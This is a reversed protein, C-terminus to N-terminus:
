VVNPLKMGDFMVTIIWGSFLRQQDVSHYMMTLFLKKSTNDSLLQSSLNQQLFELRITRTRFFLRMTELIVQRIPDFHVQALENFMQSHQFLMSSSLLEGKRPILPQYIVQQNEPQSIPRTPSIWRSFIFYILLNAILLIILSRITSSRLLM